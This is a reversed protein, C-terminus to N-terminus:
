RGDRKDHQAHQQEARKQWFTEARKISADKQARAAEREVRTRRQWFFVVAGVLLGIQVLYILTLLTEHGTTTDPVIAIAVNRRPHVLEYVGPRTITFNIVPRGRAYPTDYVRLGRDIFTTPIQEGTDLAKVKLWPSREANIMSDTITLLEVDDVYVAYLGPQMLRVDTPSTNMEITRVDEPGVTRILGLAGPIFLFPSGVTKLVNGLSCVLMVGVIALVIGFLIARFTPSKPESSM